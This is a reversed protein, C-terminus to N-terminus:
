AMTTIGWMGIEGDVWLDAMGPGVDSGMYDVWSGTRNFVLDMHYWTDQFLGQTVAAVEGVIGGDDSIDFDFTGAFQASTLQIELLNDSQAILPFKFLNGGADSDDFEIRVDFSLTWVGDDSVAQTASNPNYLGSSGPGFDLEDNVADYTWLTGDHAFSTEEITAETFYDEQIIAANASMPAALILTAIAIAVHTTFRHKHNHM